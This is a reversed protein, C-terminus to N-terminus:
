RHGGHGGHGGYGGHGGHGYNGHGHHIRYGPHLGKFYRGNKYYGNHSIWCMFYTDWYFLCNNQYFYPAMIIECGYKDCVEVPGINYSVEQALASGELAFLSLLIIILQKM